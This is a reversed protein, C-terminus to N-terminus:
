AAGLFWRSGRGITIPGAFRASAEVRHKVGVAAREFLYYRRANRPGKAFAGSGFRTMQHVTKRVVEFDKGLLEAIEAMLLGDHEGLVRRIAETMGANPHRERGAEQSRRLTEAAVPDSVISSRRSMVPGLSLRQAMARGAHTLCFIGHRGRGPRGEGIREVEGRDRLIKLAGRVAMASAGTLDELAEVGLRARLLALLVRSGLSSTSRPRSM